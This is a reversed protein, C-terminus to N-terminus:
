RADVTAYLCFFRHNDYKSLVFIVHWEYFTLTCLILSYCSYVLNLVALPSTIVGAGTQVSDSSAGPPGGFGGFGGRPPPPGGTLSENLTFFISLFM